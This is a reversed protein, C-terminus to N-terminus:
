NIVQPLTKLKNKPLHMPQEMPKIKKHLHPSWKLLAYDKEIRWFTDRLPRFFGVGMRRRADQPIEVDESSVNPQAVQSGENEDFEVSCSEIVFRSTKDYVILTLNPVMVM